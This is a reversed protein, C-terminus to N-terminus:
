SKKGGLLVRQRTTSRLSFTHSFRLVWDLSLGPALSLEEIQAPQPKWAAVEPPTPWVAPREVHGFRGCRRDCTDIAECDDSGTTMEGDEVSWLVASLQM